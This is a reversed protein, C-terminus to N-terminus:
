KEDDGYLKIYEKRGDPYLHYVGKADGHTSPRGAAHTEEIARRTAEAFLAEEEEKTLDRIDKKVTKEEEYLKIYEKRGDPYLHYVGKADGHTSPRGAAHTEEIAKRTAEAFMAEKEEKTMEWLKKKM